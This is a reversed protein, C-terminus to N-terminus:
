VLPTRRMIVANKFNLKQEIYTKFEGMPLGRNVRIRAAKTEIFDILSMHEKYITPVWSIIKIQMLTPDYAQFAVDKSKREELVLTKMPYIKLLQLTLDERGEYTDM